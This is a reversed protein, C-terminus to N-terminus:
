DTCYIWEWPVRLGYRLILHQFLIYVSAQTILWIGPSREGLDVYGGGLDISHELLSEHSGLQLPLLSAPSVLCHSMASGLSSM